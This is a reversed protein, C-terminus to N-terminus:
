QCISSTMRILTRPIKYGKDKASMRNGKFMLVNSLWLPKLYFVFLFFYIWNATPFPWARRGPNREVPQKLLHLWGYVKEWQWFEVSVGVPINNVVPSLLGLPSAESAWCFSWNSWKMQMHIQGNSFIYNKHKWYETYACHLMHTFTCCNKM